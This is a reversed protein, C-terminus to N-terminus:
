LLIIHCKIRVQCSDGFKISSQECGVKYSDAIYELTFEGVNQTSIIAVQIGQNTTFHGLTMKQEKFPQKWSPCLSQSPLDLDKRNTM